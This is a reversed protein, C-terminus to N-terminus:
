GTIGVCTMINMYFKWLIIPNKLLYISLFFNIQLNRPWGQNYHGLIMSIILLFEWQPEYNIGFRPSDM